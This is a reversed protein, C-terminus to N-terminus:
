FTGKAQFQKFTEIMIAYNRPKLARQKPSAQMHDSYAQGVELRLLGTSSSNLRGADAPEVTVLTYVSGWSSAWGSSM